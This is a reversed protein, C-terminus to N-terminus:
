IMAAMMQHAITENDETIEYDGDKLSITKTQKMLRTRAVEAIDIIFPTKQKDPDGAGDVFPFRYRRCGATPPVFLLASRIGGAGGCDVATRTDGRLDSDTFLVIVREKEPIGQDAFKKMSFAVAADINEFGDKSGGAIRGALLAEQIDNVNETFAERGWSAHTITDSFRTLGFRISGSGYQSYDMLDSCMMYVTGLIDRMSASYDVIFDIVTDTGLGKGRPKVATLEDDWVLHSGIGPTLSFNGIM